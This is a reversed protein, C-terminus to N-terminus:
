KNTSNEREALVEKYLTVDQRIKAKRAAKSAKAGFIAILGMCVAFALLFIIIM